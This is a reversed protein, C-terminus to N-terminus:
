KLALLNLKLLPAILSRCGSYYWNQKCALENIVNKTTALEAHLANVTNM